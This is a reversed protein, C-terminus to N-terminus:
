KFQITITAETEGSVSTSGSPVPIPVTFSTDGALNSLNIETLTVNDLRGISRSDGSVTITQPDITVTVDDLTSGPSEIFDVVLPLEKIMLIPVNVEVTEVSTRFTSNEIVD